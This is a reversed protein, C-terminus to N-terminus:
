PVIRPIARAYRGLRGSSSAGWTWLTGDSRIAASFSNGASVSVWTSANGVRTPTMQGILSATGLEGSSNDGWAWLSGDNKIGLAHQRGTAVQTWDSAGGIQVPESRTINSGDGLQGFDNQGWSWGSGDAKLGIAFHDGVGFSKWRSTPEIQTPQNASGQQPLYTNGWTWITQDSKLAVTHLGSSAASVWDSGGDVQVPASRSTSSGDGIAGYANNGWGWLTGDSQIAMTIASGAAGSRWGTGTGIRFPATRDTANGDVDSGAGWAWLSGDRKIGVTHRFGASVSSWVSSDVRVPEGRSTTTGDGLQGSGNTGWAWLSGDMKIALAHQDGASVTQWGGNSEVLGPIASSFYSDGWSWLTGDTRIAYVAEGTALATAWSTATGVQVPLTRQITTGDGLQGASNRGWAWLTGDAKVAITSANGAAISTWNTATGVQGPTSRQGTSGTGLQGESNLGWTWLTGDNKVAVTHNRGVSVMAWNTENGVRTPTSRATTTGDGLEGYSNSGWGWLSGDTKIAMTHLVSSTALSVWNSETGKQIPVNAPATGWEWLTGDARVAITNRGVAVVTSWFSNGIRGPALRDNTTGDGLQGNDNKGWGWLTGDTRVALTFDSGVSVARWGMGVGVEVPDPRSETTGDGLQGSDNNGWTWLRGGARIAAYHGGASVSVWGNRGCIVKIAVDGSGVLGSGGRTECFLGAPQSKISVLYPSGRLVRNAFQGSESGSNITLDPQSTHQLVVASSSLGEIFVRIASTPTTFTLTPKTTLTVNSVTAAISGSGTASSQITFSAIGSGDSVALTPTITATGSFSLSVMQGALTAGLGNRVTVTAIAQSSTVAELSAPSVIVTSLSEDPGATAFQISASGIERGQVLAAIRSTGSFTSSVLGTAEGNADTAPPQVIVVTEAASLIPQQGSIINNNADRLRIAVTATSTGDALVRAPNISLSSTATSAPGAIFSIRASKSVAGATVTVTKPEAVTSTLTTAFVGTSDTRGLAVGVLNATGSITVTVDTGSVPRGRADYLSLQISSASVGDAVLM